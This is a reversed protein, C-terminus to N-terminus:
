MKKLRMGPIDTLDGMTRPRRSALAILTSDHFIVYPPVGQERALRRSEARAEHQVVQGPASAGAARRAPDAAGGRHRAPRWLRRAGSGARAARGAPPLGLEM